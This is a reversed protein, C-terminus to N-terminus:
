LIDALQKANFLKRVDFYRLGRLTQAKGKGGWPIPPSIRRLSAPRFVLVKKGMRAERASDPHNRSPCDPALPDVIRDIEAFFQVARRNGSVYLAFYPPQRKPSIPIFGWANYRLLFQIGEPRGPTLLVEGLPMAAIQAPAAAPIEGESTYVPQGGKLAVRESPIEQPIEEQSALSIRLLGRVAETVRERTVGEIQAKLEPYVLNRATRILEDEIAPLSKTLLARLKIGFGLSAARRDLGGEAVAARSLLELSPPPPAAPDLRFTELLAHDPDKGWRQNFIRYDEGNTLVCWQVGSVAGYSLVQRANVDRLESRLKKAEVLVKPQGDIMLAYDVNEQKTGVQVPFEKVVDDGWLDWGLSDLLPDVLRRKTNEEDLEKTGTLAKCLREWAKLFAPSKLVAGM